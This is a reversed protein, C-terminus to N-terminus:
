KKYGVILFGTADLRAGVFSVAATAMAEAPRGPSRPHITMLTPFSVDADNTESM